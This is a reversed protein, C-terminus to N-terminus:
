DIPVLLNPFKRRDVYSYNAAIFENICKAYEAFEYRDWMKGLWWDLWIFKPRAEKVQRCTKFDGRSEEWRTLWPVYGGVADYAPLRKTKLYIIPMVPFAAIKDLSTTNEIIYQFTPELDALKLGPRFTPEAPVMVRSHEGENWSFPVYRNVQQVSNYGLFSVITVVPIAAMLKGTSLALGISWAFLSIVGLYYPADHHPGLRLRLASLLIFACVVFAISRWPSRREHFYAFCGWIFLGLLLLCEGIRDVYRESKFLWYLHDRMVTVLSPGFLATTLSESYQTFPAYAELNFVVAQEFFGRVSGFSLLWVLYFLAGLVIGGTLYKLSTRCDVGNGRLVLPTLLLVVLFPYFTILSGSVWAVFLIGGLFPFYKSHPRSELHGLAAPLLFVNVFCVFLYGWLSDTFVMHGVWLPALVAVFFMFLASSLAKLPLSLRLPSLLFSLGTLVLFLWPIVRFHTFDDSPSVTAVIQASIYALPTHQCFLSDYLKLGQTLLWGVAM